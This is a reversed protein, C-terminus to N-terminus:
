PHVLGSHFNGIGGFGGSLDPRGVRGMSEDEGCSHSEAAAEGAREQKPIRKNKEDLM